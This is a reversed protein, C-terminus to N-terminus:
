INFYNTNKQFSHSKETFSERKESKKRFNTFFAQLLHLFISYYAPSIFM